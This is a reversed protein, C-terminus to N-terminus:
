AGMKKYDEGHRRTYEGGDYRTIIDLWKTYGYKKIWKVLPMYSNEIPKGDFALKRALEELKEHAQGCEPVKGAIEIPIVMVGDMDGLIIDGPRVAVGDCPIPVNVDVAM